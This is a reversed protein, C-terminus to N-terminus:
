NFVQGGIVTRASERTYVRESGQVRKQYDAALDLMHQRQQEPAFSDDGKNGTKRDTIRGAKWRWGEAASANLMILSYTPVWDEDAPANGEQDAVAARSLLATIDDESLAPEVDAACMGRLQATAQLLTLM